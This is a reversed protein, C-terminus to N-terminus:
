ATARRGDGRRGPRGGPRSSAAAAVGRAAAARQPTSSAPIGVVVQLYPLAAAHDLGHDDVVTYGAIVVGIALGALVDASRAGTGSGACPGCAPAVVLLM